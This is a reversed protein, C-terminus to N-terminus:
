QKKEGSKKLLAEIERNKNIYFNEHNLALHVAREQVYKQYDYFDIRFTKRFKDVLELYVM